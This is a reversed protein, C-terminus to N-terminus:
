SKAKKKATKRRRKRKPPPAEEEEEVDERRDEIILRALEVIVMELEESEDDRLNGKLVNYLASAIAPYNLSGRRRRPRRRPRRIIQDLPIGQSALLGLGIDAFKGWKGM